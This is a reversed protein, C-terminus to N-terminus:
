PVFAERVLDPIESVSAMSSIFYCHNFINGGSGMYGQNADTWIPDDSMLTNGGYVNPWRDWYVTGADLLKLLDIM